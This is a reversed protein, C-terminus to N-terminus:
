TTTSRQTTTRPGCSNRPLPFVNTLITGPPITNQTYRLISTRAAGTTLHGSITALRNWYLAAHATKLSVWRASITTCLLRSAYPSLWEYRPFIHPWHSTWTWRRRYRVTPLPQMPAIDQAPLTLVAIIALTAILSIAQWRPVSVWPSTPLCCM